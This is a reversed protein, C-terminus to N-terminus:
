GVFHLRAKNILATRTVATAVAAAAIHSTLNSSQTGTDASSPLRAWRTSIFCVSVQDLQDGSGTISFQLCNIWNLGMVALFCTKSRGRFHHSRSRWVTDTQECIEFILHWFTSLDETSTITYKSYFTCFISTEIRRQRCHLVNEVEPKHIVDSKRM